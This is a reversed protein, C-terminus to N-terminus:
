FRSKLELHCHYVAIAGQSASTLVQKLETSNTADGVAFIGSISTKQTKDVVIYNESDLVLGLKALLETNPVMGIEIFLGDLQIVKSASTRIGTLQGSGLLETIETNYLVEIKPNSLVHKVWVDEARLKDKRYILYVKKALDALLLASTVASDSGGVVGVVKGKYLWGDCTACYSIGKGILEGEREIGLKKKTRGIALIVKRANVTRRDTNVIFCDGNKAIDMVKEFEIEAGLAKAQEIFKDALELGSIEKFGPYNSIIHALGMAGGFSDSFLITKLGYRSAYIASTLGSSGGGVIVIDYITKGIEKGNCAQTIM